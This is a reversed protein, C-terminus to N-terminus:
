PRLGRLRRQRCPRRKRAHERTDHTPRSQKAHRAPAEEPPAAVTCRRRRTPCNRRISFAGSFRARWGIFRVLESRAPKGTAKLGPRQRQDLPQALTLLLDKEEDSFHLPTPM